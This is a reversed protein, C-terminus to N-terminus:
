GERRTVGMIYGLGSLKLPPVYKEDIEKMVGSV